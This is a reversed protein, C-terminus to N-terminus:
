ENDFPLAKRSVLEVPDLMPIDKESSVGLEKFRRAAPLIRTELSGIAKNYALVSKGLAQGVDNLHETLVAMREYLDKGLRGAEEAHETLQEQRWGYGVARLLAMLTTPTALVVSRLFGDEILRPDHELAAGLFQEGPLFLVVFEPAQAFQNWYAKLSLEDMRSRVQAAHRRMGELRLEETSAEHADLYGALVTKADVIIQRGGPLQVVMDPRLRGGEVTISEQEFFDCHAVMGALEAVRKLTIEGWQGRIAPARLAKVLNGTESQLRQQSEALLKLHQDLGGYAAQRSQELQRLQDDYRHLSDQLPKVLSDIAQQRQALDGKAEAQLTAFSSRALNLFAENNQKLAEGSLAQFTEALEQRAQALLTRQENLHLAAEEARTEAVARARSVESLDQRLRDLDLSNQLVQRRLEEALSEARQAREGSALLQTQANARVRSAIWFGVVLAGILGGVLFGAGFAM